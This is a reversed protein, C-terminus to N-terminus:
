FKLGKMCGHPSSLTISFERARMIAFSIFHDFHCNWVFNYPSQNRYKELRWLLYVQKYSLLITELLSPFFMISSHWFLVVRTIVSYNHQKFVHQPDVYM